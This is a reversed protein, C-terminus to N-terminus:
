INFIRSGHLITLIRVQDGNYEYILRYSQFILERISPDKMEPAVRGLEPFSALSQIREYIKTIFLNAYYQSDRAIFDFIPHIDDLARETWEIAAM